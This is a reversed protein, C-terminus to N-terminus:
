IINTKYFLQNVDQHGLAYDYVRLDSIYGLQNVNQTKFGAKISDISVSSLSRSSSNQLNNDIYVDVRNSTKDFVVTCLSPKQMSDLKLINSVFYEAGAISIAVRRTLGFRVSVNGIEILSYNNNSFDADYPYAYWFSVSFSDPLVAPTDIGFDTMKILGKRSYPVTNRGELNVGYSDFKYHWRPSDVTDAYELKAARENLPFRYKAPLDRNFVNRKPEAIAYNNRFEVNIGGVPLEPIRVYVLASYYDDGVMLKLSPSRYGGDQLDNTYLMICEEGNEDEIPDYSGYRYGNGTGSASPDLNVIQNIRFWKVLDWSGWIDSEKCAVYNTGCAIYLGNLKSALHVNQGWLKIDFSQGDNKSTYLGPCYKIAAEGGCVLNGSEAFMVGNDADFGKLKHRHDERQWSAGYDVSTWQSQRAVDDKISGDFSLYLKNPEVTTDCVINHVHQSGVMDPTFVMTWTEGMDTSKYVRPSFTEQYAGLYMHGFKDTALNKLRWISESLGPPPVIVTKSTTYNTSKYFKTLDNEGVIKGYINQEADAFAFAVNTFVTTKTSFFDTSIDVNNGRSGFWTDGVKQISLYKGGLDHPFASYNGSSVINMDVMEDGVFARLDSFDDNIKGDFFVHRYGTTNGQSKKHINIPVLVDYLVENSPNEINISVTHPDNESSTLRRLSDYFTKNEEFEDSEFVVSQNIHEDMSETIPAPIEPLYEEKIKESVIEPVYPVYETATQGEEVQMIDRNDTNSTSVYVYMYGTIPAQVVYNGQIYTHPDQGDQTIDEFFSIRRLVTSGFGGSVTYYNGEEVFIPNSIMGGVGDIFRGTSGIVKDMIVSDKDFLNKGRVVVTNLYVEKTLTKRFVEGGVVGRDDEPAVRGDLPETPLEGMNLLSWSSGDWSAIGFNGETVTFAPNGGFTYDGEVLMTFGSDAAPTPLAYGSVPIYNANQQISDFMYELGDFDNSGDGVKINTVKGSTDGVILIEGKYPTYSITRWQEPTAIKQIVRAEITEM